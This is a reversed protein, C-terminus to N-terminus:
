AWSPKTIITYTTTPKKQKPGERAEDIKIYGSEELEELAGSIDRNSVGHLGRRMITRPVNVGGKREISKYVARVVERTTDPTEHEIVRAWLTRLSWDVLRVAHNVDDREIHPPKTRDTSTAARGIAHIMAVRQASEAGRSYFKGFNEDEVSKDNIWQRYSFLLEKAEESITVDVVPATPIRDASQAFQPGLLEGQWNRINKLASIIHPPATLTSGAGGFYAAKLQERTRRDNARRATALVLLRNAMGNEIDSSSLANFFEGPTTMGLISLAPWWINGSAPGAGAYQKSRMMGFSRGWAERFVRTIATEWTGAKKSSIKKWFSGFEDMLSVSLPNDLIHRTVASDATYDPPGVLDAMNADHLATAVCQMPHDKGVGTPAAGVVYLHTGTKTPGRFQRGAVTGITVLAAAYSLLPCPTTATTEVWKAFQGVAGMPFCMDDPWEIMALDDGVYAEVSDADRVPPPLIDNLPNDPPAPTATSPSKAPTQPKPRPTIDLELVVGGADPPTIYSRLWEYADNFSVKMACMVLDIPSYSVEVGFDKIGDPQISLNQKRKADERGSSSPRWTAVAEYGNRAKQCRYLDLEPVWSDLDALAAANLRKHVSASLDHVTATRPKDPTVPARTVGQPAATSAADWGLARMMDEFKALADDDFIPLESVPVPGRLWRYDFADSVKRGNGVKYSKSNPLDYGDPHHTPPVVTQRTHNGTLFDALREQKMRGRADLEGTPRNFARTKLEPSARYFLTEGKAGRKSMPTHPMQGVVDRVTDDDTIDLDIAIVVLGNGADSGLVIGVGADPWKLWQALETRNPKKDRWQQWTDMAQWRGFAFSGPRKQRPEIPLIHYGMSLLQDAGVKLPSPKAVPKTM